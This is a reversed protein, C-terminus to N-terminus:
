AENAPGILMVSTVRQALGCSSYGLWVGADLCPYPPPAVVIFMLALAPHV